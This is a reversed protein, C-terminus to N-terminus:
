QVSRPPAPGSIIVWSLETPSPFVNRQQTPLLDFTGDIVAKVPCVAVGDPMRILLERNCKLFDLTNRTEYPLVSRM